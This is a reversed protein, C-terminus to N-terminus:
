WLRPDNVSPLKAKEEDDYETEEALADHEDEEDGEQVTDKYKEALNSIYNESLGHKRQL